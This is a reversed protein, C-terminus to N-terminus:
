IPQLKAFEERLVQRQADTMFPFQSLLARMLGVAGEMPIRVAVEELKSMAGLSIQPTEKITMTGAAIDTEARFTEKDIDIWETTFHLVLDMGTPGGVGLVTAGTAAVVRWLSSKSYRVEIKQEAM